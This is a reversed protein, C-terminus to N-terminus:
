VGGVQSDHSNKMTVTNMGTAMGSQSQQGSSNWSVVNNSSYTAYVKPVFILLLVGLDNLFVMGSRVFLSATPQDVVLMLIPLSIAVIQLNSVMSFAVYKSEQYATPATRVKYCFYSGVLLVTIHVVLLPALFRFASETTKMACGGFSEEPQNFSNTSTIKRRWVLPNLSQWSLLISGDVLLLFAIPILM